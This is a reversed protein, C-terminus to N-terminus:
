AAGREAIGCEGAIRALPINEELYPQLFRFRAIAKSSAFGPAAM